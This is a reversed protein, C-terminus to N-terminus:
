LGGGGRIKTTKAQRDYVDDTFRGDHLTKLREAFEGCTHRQRAPPSDKSLLEETMKGAHADVRCCDAYVNLRCSMIHISETICWMDINRQPLHHDEQLQRNMLLRSRDSRYLGLRTDTSSGPRAENIQSVVLKAATLMSYSLKSM